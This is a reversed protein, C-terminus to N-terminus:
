KHYREETKYKDVFLGKNELEQKILKTIELDFGITACLDEFDTRTIGNNNNINLKLNEYKAYQKVKEIDDCMMEFAEIKNIIHGNLIQLLMDDTRASINTRNNAWYEYEQKISAIALDRLDDSNWKEDPAYETIRESLDLDPNAKIEEITLTKKNM